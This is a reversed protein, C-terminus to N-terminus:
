TPQSQSPSQPPSALAADTMFPLVAHSPALLRTLFFTLSTIGLGAPFAAGLGILTALLLAVPIV